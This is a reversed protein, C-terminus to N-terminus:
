HRTASKLKEIEDKARRLIDRIGAAQEDSLGGKRMKRFLAARFDQIAEGIAAVGIPAAAANVQALIRELEPRQEELYVRGADTIAYLKRFGRSQSAVLGAEELLQLIPYIAGPSPSYAGQFRAKMGKIIDYGHRPEEGILGLVVLRLAGSDFVRGGRKRGFPGGRHRGFPGFPPRFGGEEEDKGTPCFPPRM